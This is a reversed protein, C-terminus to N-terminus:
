ATMALEAAIQGAWADIEAWPRFDGEPARVAAVMAREAIGLGDKWLSGAFVRHERAHTMEVLSAAYSPDEGPMASDGLPGSSFLWVPRQLLEAAHHTIFRRAPELWHGLYVSSGLVVADYEELSAVSDVSLVDVEIKRLTLSTAITRAIETTSGHKSAATVLVRM